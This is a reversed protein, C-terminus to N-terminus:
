GTPGLDLVRLNMWGGDQSSYQISTGCDWLVEIIKNDQILHFNVMTGVELCSKNQALSEIASIWQPTHQHDSLFIRNGGGSKTPFYFVRMGKLVLAHNSEAFIKVSESAM